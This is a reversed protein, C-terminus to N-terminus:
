SDSLGVGTSIEVQTYLDLQIVAYRTRRGFMMLTMVSINVVIVHIGTTMIVSTYKIQDAYSYRAQAWQLYLKPFTYAIVRFACKHLVIIM